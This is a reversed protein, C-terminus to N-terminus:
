SKQKSRRRVTEAQQEEEFARVEDSVATRRLIEGARLEPEKLVACEVVEDARFVRKYYSGELGKKGTGQCIRRAGFQEMRSAVVEKVAQRPFPKLSGKSACGEAANEVVNRHVDVNKPFRKRAYENWEATVDEQWTSPSMVQIVVTLVTKKSYSECARIEDWSDSHSSGKIKRASSLAADPECCGAKASGGGQVKGFGSGGEKGEKRRERPGGGVASEEAKFSSSSGGGVSGNVVKRGTALRAAERPSRVKVKPIGHEQVPRGQIWVTSVLECLASSLRTHVSEVAMCVLSALIGVVLEYREKIRQHAELLQHWNCATM